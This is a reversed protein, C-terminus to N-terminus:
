VMPKYHAGKVPNVHSKQGLSKQILFYHQLMENDGIRGNNTENNWKYRRKV